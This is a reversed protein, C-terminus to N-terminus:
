KGSYFDILVDFNEPEKSFHMTEGAEPVAWPLGSSTWIHGAPRFLQAQDLTGGKVSFIEPQDQAAHFVRSGCDACFACQKTNGSDSQTVWFKLEGNTLRFAKVPVWVSIGFASSSQKQCDTCHCAYVVIPECNLRYRIEGCQCGGDYMITM